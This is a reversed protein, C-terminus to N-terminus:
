KIPPFIIESEQTQEDDGFIEGKSVLKYEEMLIELIEMERKDPYVEATVTVISNAAMNIQISRTNEPKLGLTECIMACIPDHGSIASAM